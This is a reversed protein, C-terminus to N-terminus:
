TLASPGDRDPTAQQHLHGITAGTGYALLLRLFRDSASKVDELHRRRAAGLQPAFVDRYAALERTM